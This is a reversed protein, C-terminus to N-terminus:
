EGASFGNVGRAGAIEERGPSIFRRYFEDTEDPTLELSILRHAYDPSDKACLFRYLFSKDNINSYDNTYKEIEANKYNYDLPPLYYTGRELVHGIGGPRILYHVDWSIYRKGNRHRCRHEPDLNKSFATQRYSPFSVLKISLFCISNTKGWIGCNRCLCTEERMSGLCVISLILSISLPLLLFSYRKVMRSSRNGEEYSVTVTRLVIAAKIWSFLLFFLDLFVITIFCYFMANYPFSFRIDKAVFFFLPVFLYSFVGWFFPVPSEKLAHLFLIYVILLPIYTLLALIISDAVFCSSVHQSRAFLLTCLCAIQFLFLVTFVSFRKKLRSLSDLEYWKNKCVVTRCHDCFVPRFVGEPFEIESECLPCTNKKLM